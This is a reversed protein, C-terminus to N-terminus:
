PTEELTYGAGTVADEHTTGPPFTHDVDLDTVGATPTTYLIVTPQRVINDLLHSYDALDAQVVFHKGDSGSYFRAGPGWAALDVNTLETATPM